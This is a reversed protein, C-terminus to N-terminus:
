DARRKEMVPARVVRDVYGNRFGALFSGTNYASLSALLAQQGPGYTATARNYKHTLLWAGAAVNTCPDFIAEPTVGLGSFNRSNVQMLGADYSVNQQSLWRAWAVAEDRNSPQRMLRQGGNVNIALPNGRSEVHIIKLVTAAAVTPACEAALAPLDLM